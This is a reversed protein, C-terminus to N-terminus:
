IIDLLQYIISRAHARWPDSLAISPDLAVAAIEQALGPLRKVAGHLRRQAAM